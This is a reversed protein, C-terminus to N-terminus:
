GEKHVIAWYYLINKGLYVPECHDASFTAGECHITYERSELCKEGVEHPAILLYKNLGDYGLETPVGSLYIKNKYRLPQLFGMFNVTHEGNTVTIKVGLKEFLKNNITLEFVM